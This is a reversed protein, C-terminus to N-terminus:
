AYATADGPVFCVSYRSWSATQVNRFHQLHTQRHKVGLGCAAWLFLTQLALADLSLGPRM